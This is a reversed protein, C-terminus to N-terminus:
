ARWPPVEGAGPDPAGRLAAEVARDVEAAAEEELRDAEAAPIARRGRALPDTKSDREQKRALRMLNVLRFVGAARAGVGGGGPALAASTVAGILERGEAIPARGARVLADGLFHGELRSVRALLFTAGKGRRARDVAEGAARAVAAADAGDVELAHLGFAAARAALGGGTVSESRTAIAWGNDKCVLLLPLKWAAALNLTELLMGQNMAGDGFFAAAVSGPRLARGALAFGAGLPGSSGVIGSSAALHARSMLHMHGARGRQLGDERGLMERLMAALDVGIVTLVPTPRHDLAVADGARLSAAVGAAVGEEGTGLHMEGSVLGERWLAGLADEFARARAMQRFLDQHGAPAQM